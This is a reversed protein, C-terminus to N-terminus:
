RIADEGKDTITALFVDVLKPDLKTGAYERMLKFVDEKKMAKRYPRDSTLADYIDAITLIRSLLPINEGKLGDPYGSGDYMEHHHRVLSSLKSMSHLPKLINEGIISHQKIMEHEDRSFEGTKRLMQDSIGVKGLDHLVAGGRLIKRSAEDLNLREAMMEVYGGVRELHGASYPDKAEVIRALTLLTQYYTEEIDRNLYYNEISTAIHSAINELLYIDDSGVIQSDETDCVGLVGMLKNKEIIPVCIISRYNIMEEGSKLRDIDTGDNRVIITRRANIAMGLVGRDDAILMNEKLEVQSGSYAKLKFGGDEADYLAVFSTKAGLVKKVSQVVVRLLSDIKRTTVLAAGIEQFLERTLRKSCELERVRKELDATLRNFAGALDKLEDDHAVSIKEKFNRGMSLTRVRDIVSLISSYARRLIFYGFIGSVVMLMIVLRTYEHPIGLSMQSYIKYIVFVVLVLPIIFMFFSALVFRTQLSEDEISFRKRCATPM